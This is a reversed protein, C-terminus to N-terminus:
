IIHDKYFLVRVYFFSSSKKFKSIVQISISAIYLLLFWPTFLIHDKTEIVYIVIFFLFHFPFAFIILLLSVSSEPDIENPNFLSEWEKKKEIQFWSLATIVENASSCPVLSTSLNALRGTPGADKPRLQMCTLRCDQRSFALLIEQSATLSQRILQFHTMFWCANTSHWDQYVKLDIYVYIHDFFLFLFLLSFSSDLFFFRSLSFNNCKISILFCFNFLLNFLSAWSLSSSHLSSCSIIM